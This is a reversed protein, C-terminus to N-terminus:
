IREHNKKYIKTFKDKKIAKISKKLDNYNDVNITKYNTKIMKIKYRNEILRNMDVSEVKELNSSGLKVFHKLAERKFCFINGQKYYIKKNGAKKTAITERSFYIANNEDDLVVKVRNPDRIERLDKFETYM